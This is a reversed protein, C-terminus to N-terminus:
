SVARHRHSDSLQCFIEGRAKPGRLSKTGMHWLFAAIALWIFLEYLPTPYVRCDAPWGLQVCTETTSRRWSPFGNGLAM